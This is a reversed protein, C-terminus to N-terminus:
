SMVWHSADLRASLVHDRNSSTPTRYGPQFTTLRHDQLLDAQTQYHRVWTAGWAWVAARGGWRLGLVLGNLALAIYLLAHWPTFFTEVRCRASAAWGDISGGAVLAAGLGAM